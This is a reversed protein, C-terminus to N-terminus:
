LLKIRLYLLTTFGTDAGTMKNDVIINPSNNHVAQLACSVVESVAVGVSGSMIVAVSGGVSVGRGDGDGCGAVAVIGTVGDSPCVVECSLTRLPGEVSLSWSPVILM